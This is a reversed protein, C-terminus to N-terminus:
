SNKTSKILPRHGLGVKNKLTMFMIFCGILTLGCVFILMSNLSLSDQLIGGFINGISSGLGTSMMAIMTQGMMQDSEDLHDNVYYTITATFLGFSLGQFMMGILLVILHPALCITLNRLVYFFASALLLTESRYKKLLRYTISMIPMESAAMCFVAIGYLSTNGGLNKVINILYTSLATSAAYMFTFAVLIFFFIRYKKIVSFINEQNKTTTEEQIQYPPMTYLLILLAISAIAYVFAIVTPNFFDILQGVIIAGAAYSISGLGRALGFNIYQGDKLYNMCITSFLPVMAAILSLLFVYLIMILFIPSTIITLVTFIVIMILYLTFILKNISLGKIRSLLSSIFPSLFISLIAGGGTVIGIDTNSLGRYQLFIAVYGYIALYSLWFLIQLGNYKMQLSKMSEGEMVKTKEIM